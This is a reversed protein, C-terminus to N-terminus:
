ELDPLEAIAAEIKEQPYAYDELQNGFYRDYAGLDCLGHGSFNFLICEEKGEERCRIAEVIAARIAHSTEPAPITGETAAFLCAAEFCELQHYAAAEVLGLKAAFSVMPAMGHYRLGGAHIGPPVFSHGLTYMKILPTLKTTDGFDYRYEGRSM